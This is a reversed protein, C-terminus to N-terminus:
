GFHPLLERFGQSFLPMCSNKEKSWGAWRGSELPEGLNRLAISCRFPSKDELVEKNPHYQSSLILLWLVKTSFYLKKSIDIVKCHMSETDNTQTHLKSTLFCWLTPFFNGIVKLFIECIDQSYVMQHLLWSESGPTKTYFYEKSIGQMQNDLQNTALPWLILKTM